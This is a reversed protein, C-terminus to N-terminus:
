RRGGNGRRLYEALPVTARRPTPSRRAAPAPATNAIVEIRGITVHVVQNDERSQLTRQTLVAQSLPLEPRLRAPPASVAQSDHSHPPASVSRSLGRSDPPAGVSRSSSHSAPVSVFLGHPEPGAPRAQASKKEGQRDQLAEPEAVDADPAGTPAHTPSIAKGDGRRRLESGSPLPMAQSPRVDSVPHRRTAFASIMGPASVADPSLSPGDGDIHEAPRPQGFTVRLPTERDFRSPLVAIARAPDTKRPPALRRLFDMM